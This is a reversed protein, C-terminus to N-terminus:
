FHYGVSFSLVPYFRMFGLDHQMTRRGSELDAKLDKDSIVKQCHSGNANCATGAVRIDATPQGQFILGFDSNIVFHGKRPVLNGFGFLAMPAVRRMASSATAIVPDQASSIFTKGAATITKNTPMIANAVVGNRNYLAIGPSFHISKSFPFWDVVAQISRLRLAADYNIGSDAVTQHYAFGNIGARLNLARHLRFAIDGGAGLSSMKVALAFRSGGSVHRPKVAIAAGEADPGKDVASGFGPCEDEDFTLSGVEKFHMLTCKRSADGALANTPAIAVFLVGLALLLYEASWASSFVNAYRGVASFSSAM